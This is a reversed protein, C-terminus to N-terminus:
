AVYLGSTEIGLPNYNQNEVFVMIHLFEVIDFKDNNEQLNFTQGLPISGVIEVNNLKGYRVILKEIFQM